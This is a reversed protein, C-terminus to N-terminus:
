TGAASNKASRTSWNSSIPTIPPPCRFCRWNKPEPPMSPRSRGGPRNRGRQTRAGPAHDHRGPLVPLRAHLRADGGGLRPQAGCRYESCHLPHAAAPTTAAHAQPRDQPHRPCQAHHWRCYWRRLYSVDYFRPVYVGPIKALQLLLMGARSM